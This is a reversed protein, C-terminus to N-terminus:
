YMYECGIGTGSVVKAVFGKLTNFGVPQWTYWPKNSEKPIQKLPGMYLFPADPPLRELYQGAVQCSM